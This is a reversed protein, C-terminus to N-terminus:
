ARQSGESPSAKEEFVREIERMRAYTRPTRGKGERWDPAENDMEECLEDWCFVLDAWVPSLASMASLRSAFSPVQELLLRCRGLDSPDGPHYSAAHRGVLQTGALTQFIALSSQGHRGTALWQIADEPLGVGIVRARQFAAEIVKPSACLLELDAPSGIAFTVDLLRAAHADVVADKPMGQTMVSTSSLPISGKILRCGGQDTVSFTNSM